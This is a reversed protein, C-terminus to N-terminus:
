CCCTVAPDRTPAAPHAESEGRAPINLFVLLSTPTIRHRQNHTQENLIKTTLLGQGSTVHYSLFGCAHILHASRARGCGSPGFSLIDYDELFLQIPIVTITNTQLIYHPCLTVPSNEGRRCVENLFFPCKQIPHTCKNPNLSSSIERGCWFTGFHRIEARLKYSCSILIIMNYHKELIRGRTHHFCDLPLQLRFSSCIIFDNGRHGHSGVSSM